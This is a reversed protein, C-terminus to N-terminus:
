HTDIYDSLAYADAISRKELMQRALDDESLVDYIEVPNKLNYYSRLYELLIDFNDGNKTYDNTKFDKYDEWNIKVM